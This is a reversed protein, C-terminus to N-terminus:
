YLQPEFRPEQEMLLFVSEAVSDPIGTIRYDDWHTGDIEAYPAGNDDLICRIERYIAKETLPLKSNFGRIKLYINAM